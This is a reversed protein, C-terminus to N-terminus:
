LNLVEKITKKYYTGMFESDLVLIMKHRIINSLKKVNTERM